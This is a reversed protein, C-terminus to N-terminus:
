KAEKAVTKRSDIKWIPKHKEVLKPRYRNMTNLLDTFEYKPRLYGM